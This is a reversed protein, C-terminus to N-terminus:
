KPRRRLLSLRPRKATKAKEAARGVALTAIVAIVTVILAYALMAPTSSREGFINKFVQQITENWALAAVLGFAATVLASLKEIVELKM